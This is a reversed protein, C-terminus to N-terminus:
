MNKNSSGSIFITLSNNQFGCICSVNKFFANETAIATPCWHPPTTSIEDGNDTYLSTQSQNTM